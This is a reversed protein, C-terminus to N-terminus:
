RCPRHSRLHRSIIERILPLGVCRVQVQEVRDGLFPSRVSIPSLKSQTLSLTISLVPDKSPKEVVRLKNRGIFFYRTESVRTTFEEVSM